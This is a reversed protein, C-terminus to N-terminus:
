DRGDLVKRITQALESMNVPKMIYAALGLEKANEEDVLASHGTCIIIPLDKRIALLKESFAVGTMQPMTMDTIVLDFQDPNLQFIALADIPNIEATVQYGLHALMEQTMYVLSKEDDVFLITENGMPLDETAETVAESKETTLPLLISFTTGGGPESDIFVFGGLNKVIGHVVALGMGSGKGIEKTTFYPDFIRDIIQSDIGPGTDSVAVKAYDGKPLDSWRDVSDANSVVKEVIITLRGGTQEMAQSANICLNMVVQNIQIPDALVTEDIASIKEHIDITAPITSRLFKLTDKIVPVIEMPKLKQDTKRSFSLLQKVIGAARMGAARIEEINFYAPNWKPIDKLALETNGIIIGM